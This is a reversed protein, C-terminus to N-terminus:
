MMRRIYIQNVTLTIQKVSPSIAITKPVKIVLNLEKDLFVFNYFGLNLYQLNDTLNVSEHIEITSM